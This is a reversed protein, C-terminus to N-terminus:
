ARRQHRRRAPQLGHTLIAAEARNLMRRAAPGYGSVAQGTLTMSDRLRPLARAMRLRDDRTLDGHGAEGPHFSESEMGNALLIQHRDLMLHIYCVERLNLDRAIGPQDLLDGARVLVEAEGFLDRAADGRLLMRHGPSVLLDGDPRGTGLANARLRIPRLAPTAHLAAGSLRRQGSWILPQPGDDRTTVLDGARLFEVPMPGRPTAIRTGPTFCIVPRPRAVPMAASATLHPSLRVIHLDVGAPPLAGCFLILPQRPRYPVLMGRWLTRGDTLTFWTDLLPDDHLPAAANGASLDAVRMEPRLVLPSEGAGEAPLLDGILRQVKRAARRHLDAHGLADRLIAVEAPGDLRVANTAAALANGASNMGGADTTGQQGSRRWTSGVRMEEPGTGPLGDIVIDSWPVLFTGDWGTAM